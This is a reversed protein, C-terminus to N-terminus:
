VTIPRNLEDCVIDNFETFGLRERFCKELAAKEAEKKMKAKHKQLVEELKQNKSVQRASRGHFSKKVKWKGNMFYKMQLTATVEVITLIPNVKTITEKM